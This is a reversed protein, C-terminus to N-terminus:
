SSRNRRRRLLGAFGLGLAAVTVPEPVASYTGFLSGGNQNALVYGVADNSSESVFGTPVLSGQALDDADFVYRTGQYYYGLEPENGPYPVTAGIALGDNRFAQLSLLDPNFSDTYYNGTFVGWNEGNPGVLRSYSRGFSYRFGYESYSNRVLMVGNKSITYSNSDSVNTGGSYSAYGLPGINRFPDLSILNGFFSYSTGGNGNYGTAGFPGVIEGNKGFQKGTFSVPFPVGRDDRDFLSLTNSAKRYIYTKYQSTLLMDGNARRDYIEYAQDVSSSPIDLVKSKEGNLNWYSIQIKDGRRSVGYVTGDDNLKSFNDFDPSSYSPAITDQLKRVGASKSWFATSQEYSGIVNGSVSVGSAQFNDAIKEFNFILKQASVVGAGVVLLSGILLRGFM